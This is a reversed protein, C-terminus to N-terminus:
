SLTTVVVLSTTAAVATSVTALALVRAPVPWLESFRVGLGLGFMAAALLLTTLVDTGELVTHPVLGTSRIAVAAVFGIVFWPVLPAGSGGGHAGRRSAVTYMPALLMVRALKAATATAVATGGLISGAAVVQAVEHISAGAWLAAQEDSLGLVHSLWPVIGIMATGVLTVLAVALAVSREKARIVDDIAAIAAAGCISFGAALLTVVDRDLGWRDGLYVTVTYTVAVTTVAAAVGALGITALDGLSLKLGLLVIGLRLLFRTAPAHGGIAPHDALRTHTVVAGLLLAILLPGALPVASSILWAVVAAVLAPWATLSRRVAAHPAM